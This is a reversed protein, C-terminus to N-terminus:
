NERAAAAPEFLQKAGARLDIAASWGTIRSFPANDCLWCPQCLERVKGPTLMPQYGFLRATVVNAAAVVRLLTQPVRIGALDRGAVARAIAPWDYGSQTGDDIAFTQGHCSERHTLWAVVAEALDSVHLLSLRQDAPGIVPAVGRRIARLLPLMERDGPGYLAPPRLVSWNIKPFQDLVCEGARKSRAYWSLEPRSAALSSILLFSPPQQQDTAAHLMQEVGSVNAALFDEFRAGRVSGACYVVATADRCARVLDDRDSFRVRVTECRDEILHHNQSEPRVLVRVTWGDALLRRQLHRGVFGTAGTLV